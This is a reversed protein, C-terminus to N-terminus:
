RCLRLPGSGGGGGGLLDERRQAVAGREVAGPACSPRPARLAVRPSGSGGGRAERGARGRRGPSCCLSRRRGPAGRGRSTRLMKSCGCSGRTGASRPSPCQKASSASRLPRPQHSRHPCSTSCCASRQALSYSRRAPSPRAPLGCDTPSSSRAAPAPLGPMAKGPEM